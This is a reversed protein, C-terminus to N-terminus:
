RKGKQEKLAVPRGCDPCYKSKPVKNGMKGECNVTLSGRRNWECRVRDNSMNEADRAALLREFLRDVVTGAAPWARFGSKETPRGAEVIWQALEDRHAEFAAWLGAQYASISYRTTVKGPQAIVMHAGWPMADYVRRDYDSVAVYKRGRKVYLTSPTM